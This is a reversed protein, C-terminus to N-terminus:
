AWPQGSPPARWRKGSSAWRQFALTDGMESMTQACPCAHRSAGVKVLLAGNIFHEIVPPPIVYGINEAEEHKLSQFAIGVCEGQNSFSPGGSNGVYPCGHM